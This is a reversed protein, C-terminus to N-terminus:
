GKGFRFRRWATGRLVAGGQGIAVIRWRVGGQGAREALWPPSRYGLTGAPLVAGLVSAGSSDVV